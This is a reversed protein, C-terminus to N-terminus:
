AAPRVIWASLHEDSKEPDEVDLKYATGTKQLTIAEGASPALGAPLQVLVRNGVVEGYEGVMKRARDVLVRQPQGRFLADEGLPGSLLQATMYAFPDTM